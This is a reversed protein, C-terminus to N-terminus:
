RRPAAAPRHTDRAFPVLHERSRICGFAVNVWGTAHTPLSGKRRRGCMTQLSVHSGFRADEAYADLFMRAGQEAGLRSLDMALFAVDNLVDGYRLQEAFELCDLVRPGDDLMFLDDAQLDGHGDRIMGLHQRQRLLPERGDLYRMALREIEAVM